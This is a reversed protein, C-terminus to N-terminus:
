WGNLATCILKYQSNLTHGAAEYQKKMRVLADKHRKNETSIATLQKRLEDVCDHNPFDVIDIGCYNCKLESM